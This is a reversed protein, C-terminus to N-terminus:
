ILDKNQKKKCNGEPRVPARTGAPGSSTNKERHISAGFTERKGKQTVRKGIPIGTGDRGYSESEKLEQWKEGPCDFGVTSPKKVGGEGRLGGTGGNKPHRKIQFV